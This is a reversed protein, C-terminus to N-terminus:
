VKERAVLPPISGQRSQRLFPSGGLSRWSPFRFSVSDALSNGFAEAQRFGSPDNRSARLCRLM